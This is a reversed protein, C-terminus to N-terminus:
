LGMTWGINMEMSGAVGCWLDRAIDAHSLRCDNGFIRTEFAM